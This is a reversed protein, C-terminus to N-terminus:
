RAKIRNVIEFIATDNLQKSEVFLNAQYTERLLTASEGFTM